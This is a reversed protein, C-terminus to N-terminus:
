GLVKLAEQALVHLDSRGKGDAIVSLVDVFLSFEQLTRGEGYAKRVVAVRETVVRATTKPQNPVAYMGRWEVSGGGETTGYSSM